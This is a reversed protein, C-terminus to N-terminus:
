GYAGTMTFEMYESQGIAKGTAKDYAVIRIYYTHKGPLPNLSDNYIGLWKNKLNSNDYSIKYVSEVMMKHGNKFTHPNGKPTEVYMVLKVEKDKEGTVNLTYNCKLMNKGKNEVNFELFCNKFTAKKKYAGTMTFTMYDSKGITKKKAMDVAECHVYYTNKGPLPDIESNYFWLWKDELKSNDYNINFSKERKLIKGDKGRLRTGEPSELYMVVKITHNKANQVNLNYHYKMYKKGEKDKLNLELKCNSFFAKQGFAVNPILASILLILSVSIALFNKNLHKM